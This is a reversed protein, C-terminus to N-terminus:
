TIVRKLLNSVSPEPKRYRKGYLVSTAAVHNTRFDSLVVYLVPM